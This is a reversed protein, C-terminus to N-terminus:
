KKIRSLMREKWEPSPCGEIIPLIPWGTTTEVLHLLTWEIGFCATKPFIAVIKEAEESSDLSKLPALLEEYKELVGDAIEESEDPLPGLKYLADVEPRVLM